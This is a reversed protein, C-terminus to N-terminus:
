ALHFPQQQHHVQRQHRMYGSNGDNGVASFYSGGAAVFQNIAKSIVGDQFFPEDPYGLDDVIIKCGANKLAIVAAAMANQDSDGSYFALSAGPALDHIEELLARGEDSDGPLGDKLVQVNNPLDGSAVSDALGGGARGVSDSIVGVKVGAGTLGYLSRALDVHTVSDAQDVARGVSHIIPKSIATISFVHPLAAAQALSSIPLYGNVRHLQPASDLLSFGLSELRRLLRKLNGHTHISVAPRGDSNRISGWNVTGASDQASLQALASSLISHGRASMGASSAATHHLEARGANHLRTLQEGTLGSDSAHAASLLLRSELAEISKGNSLRYGQLANMRQRSTNLPRLPAERLSSPSQMWLSDVACTPTYSNLM